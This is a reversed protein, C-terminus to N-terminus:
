PGLSKYMPRAWRTSEVGAGKGEVPMAGYLAWLATRLFSAHIFNVPSGGGKDFIPNPISGLLCSFLFPQWFDLPKLKPSTPLAFYFNCEM